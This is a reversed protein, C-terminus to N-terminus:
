LKVSALFQGKGSTAEFFFFFFDSQNCSTSDSRKESRADGTAASQREPEDLGPTLRNDPASKKGEPIKARPRQTPPWM